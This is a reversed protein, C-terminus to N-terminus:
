HSTNSCNARSATNEDAPVTLTLPPTSSSPQAKVATSPRATTAADAPLALPQDHREDAGAVERAGLTDDGDVGSRALQLQRVTRAAGELSPAAAALADAWRALPLAHPVPCLWLLPELLAGSEARACRALQEVSLDGLELWLAAATGLRLAGRGETARALFHLACLPERQRALARLADSLLHADQVDFDLCLECM